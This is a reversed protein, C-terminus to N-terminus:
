TSPMSVPWLHRLATIAFIIGFIRSLSDVQMMVLEYNLLSGSVSYGDPRTFVIFLALLPFVLFASPRVKEPLFPMLMAGAILIVGPITLFEIM